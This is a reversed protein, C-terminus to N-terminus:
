KVLKMQSLNKGDCNVLTLSCFLVPAQTHLGVPLCSTNLKQKKCDPSVLDIEVKQILEGIANKQEQVLMNKITYPHTEASWETLQELAQLKSQQLVWAPLQNAANAFAPLIFVSLIFKKM